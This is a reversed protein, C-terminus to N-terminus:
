VNLSSFLFFSLCLQGDVMWHHHHKQLCHRHSYFSGGFVIMGVDVGNQPLSPLIRQIASHYCRVTLLLSLHLDVTERDDTRKGSDGDHTANRQNVTM